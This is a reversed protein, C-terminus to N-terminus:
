FGGILPGFSGGEPPKQPPKRKPKAKAKSKPKSKGKPKAGAKGRGKRRQPSRPQEVPEEEDDFELSMTEMAGLPSQSHGVVDGVSDEVGPVPEQDAAKPSPHPPKAPQVESLIEPQAKPQVDPISEIASQPPRRPAASTEEMRDRQRGYVPEYAAPQDPLDFDSVHLEM